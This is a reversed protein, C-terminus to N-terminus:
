AAAKIYKGNEKSFEFGKQTAIENLIRKHEVPADKFHEVADAFDKETELLAMDARILALSEQAQRVEESQKNLEDKTAQIIEAFYDPRTSFHPVEQVSLQAPNKGFGSASPNFDLMRKTNNGTGEIRIRGMVDAVKYIEGKSGGQIDLREVLDDGVQKEEMHAILIIDKGFSKLLNLWGSFGAKLAGFGPLSLQGGYGKFKPNKRILEAALCDLARGATDVVITQYPTLDSEAIQEVEGWGSVQVTDKRFQSRHAGKDFDLLLPSAATFAMSTKGLGPPAYICTILNRVEIPQTAKIIKLAM